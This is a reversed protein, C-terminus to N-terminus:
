TGIVPGDRVRTLNLPTPEYCGPVRPASALAETRLDTPDGTSSFPEDPSSEGIDVISCTQGLLDIM